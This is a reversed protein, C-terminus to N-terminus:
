QQHKRLAKQYNKQWLQYQNIFDSWTSGHSHYVALKPEWVFKFGKNLHYIAWEADEGGEVMKLDFPHNHWLKKRFLSNTNAMIGLQPSDVVKPPLLIKIHGLGYFLQEVASANDLPLCPGYIGAVKDLAFYKQSIELFNDFVPIAHASFVALYDAKAREIGVNLAFSCSFDSHAIRIIRCNFEKAIILTKDTSGSDVILVELIYDSQKKLQNLLRPLYRQDNGTRIIVSFERKM